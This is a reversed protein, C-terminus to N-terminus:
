WGLRNTNLIGFTSSNLTFLDYITVPSLYVTFETRGPIASVTAGEVVMTITANTEYYPSYYTLTTTKGSMASLEDLFETMRTDTQANDNFRVDAYLEEKAFVNAYYDTQAQQQATNNFLVERNYTREYNSASVAQTKGVTTSNLNVVNPYNANPLKRTLGDYVLKTSANTGFTFLSASPASSTRFELTEGDYYYTSNETQLLEVVRQGITTPDFADSVTARGNIPTPPPYPPVFPYVEQALLGAQYIANTYGIIPDDNVYFLSLMGLADTGTITATYAGLAIDDQYTVEVVYFYMEIASLDNGIIIQAGEAITAAQGTNNRITLTCNNGTPTDFWSSRGVTFSLSQTISTYSTAGITIDWDVASM